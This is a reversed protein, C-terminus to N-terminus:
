RNNFHETIQVVQIGAKRIVTRIILTQGGPQLYMWQTIRVRMLPNYVLEGHQGRMLPGSQNILMCAQRFTAWAVSMRELVQTDVKENSSNCIGAIACM